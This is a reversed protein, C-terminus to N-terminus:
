IHSSRQLPDFRLLNSSCIAFFLFNEM